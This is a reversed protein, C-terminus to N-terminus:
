APEEAARTLRDHVASWSEHDPPLEVILAACGARDAAHLADFLDRAYASPDSGLARSFHAELDAPELTLLGTPEPADRRAAVLEGRAALVVRARPAYHRRDLGPSAHGEAADARPPRTDLTPVLERLRAIPSGGPRLLRPPDVTVDVVSSEIGVACAGGDLILDVREGLSELVHEARTPSVTNSRNASPAALPLGCRELLALLVAHGPVRVAITSRGASVCALRDDAREVVLTLPGPWLARVLQEAAAPWTAALARAADVSGVHVILPNHAPRGKAAYIREVAGPDDARAALGYVTETPVAVLGGCELARAAAEIAVRDVGGSADLAPLVRAGTM